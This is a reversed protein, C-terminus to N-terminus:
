AERGGTDEESKILTFFTDELSPTIERFTFLEIGSAALREQIGKRADATEETILHLKNGFLSIERIEKADGLVKMARLPDGTGVEFVLGQVAEEKLQQPEGIAVIRGKHIFALRQCREAEDMYHTTIFITIGQSQLSYILDWFRQRSEPDVGATPEDLFIVKPRHVIACALALRQKWGLPLESTLLEEKGELGTISYVWEAREKLLSGTVGYVGSFFRINESATLDPYLSFKQSMYGISSKLEEIQTYLDYGAVKGKGSTPILIGCLMKITTTKGAGNPGLFGFVEGSRVGFSVSDVATFSGFQKKLDEVEISVERNANDMM